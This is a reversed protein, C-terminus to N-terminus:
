QSFDHQGHGIDARVQASENATRRGEEGHNDSTIVTLQIIHWLYTQDIIGKGAQFMFAVTDNDKYSSDVTYM